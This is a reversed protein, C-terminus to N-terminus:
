LSLAATGPVVAISSTAGVESAAGFFFPFFSFNGFTWPEHFRGRHSIELVSLGDFRQEEDALLLNASRRARIRGPELEFQAVAGARDGRFHPVVERREKCGELAAVDNANAAAGLSVVPTQLHGELLDNGDGFVRVGEGIEQRVRLVVHFREVRAQEGGDRGHFIRPQLCSRAPM